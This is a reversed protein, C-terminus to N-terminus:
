GSNLLPLWEDFGVIGNYEKEENYEVTYPYNQCYFNHFLYRADTSLSMEDVYSRDQMDKRKAKRVTKGQEDHLVGAIEDISVFKDYRGQYGGLNDGNANLVTIVSHERQIAKGPSKIELVIEDERIVARAGKRLSDPILMTSYGQARALCPAALLLM